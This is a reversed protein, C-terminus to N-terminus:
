RTIAEAEDPIDFSVLESRFGRTRTAGYGIGLLMWIIGAIKAPKSLHLWLVLCIVFGLIPLLFSSLTRQRQRLFYHVFSAANVGMFALLAGFNLLEAAREFNLVATGALALLGVLVVNNQPIRRKPE